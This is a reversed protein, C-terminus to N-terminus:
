KDGGGIVRSRGAAFFTKFTASSLAGMGGFFWLFYSRSGANVTSGKLLTLLM